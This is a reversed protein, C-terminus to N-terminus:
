ETDKAPPPFQFFQHALVSKDMGCRKCPLCTLHLSARLGQEFPAAVATRGAHLRRQGAFIIVRDGALAPRRMLTCANFSLTQRVISGQGFSRFPIVSIFVVLRQTNRTLLGRVRFGEPTFWPVTRWSM